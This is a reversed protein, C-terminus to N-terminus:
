EWYKFTVVSAIFSDDMLENILEKNLTLDLVEKRALKPMFFRNHALGLNLGQTPFIGQLLFHCGVGTNKATSNWLYLLRTSYLEHSRLSNSMASHSVSINVLTLPTLPNAKIIYHMHYTIATVPIRAQGKKDLPTSQIFWM